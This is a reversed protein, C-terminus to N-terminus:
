QAKTQHGFPAVRVIQDAAFADRNAASVFVWTAGGHEHLYQPDGRMPDGGRWYTMVDFGNAALGNFHGLNFSTNQDAASAAASCVLLLLLRCVSRCAKM